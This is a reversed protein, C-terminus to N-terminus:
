DHTQIMKRLISGWITYAVSMVVRIVGAYTRQNKDREKMKNQKQYNNQLYTKNEKKM